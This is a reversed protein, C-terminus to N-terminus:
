FPQLLAHANQQLMSGVELGRCQWALRMFLAALRHTGAIFLRRQLQRDEFPAKPCRFRGFVISSPSFVDSHGDFRPSRGCNLLYERM